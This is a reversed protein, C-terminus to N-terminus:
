RLDADAVQPPQPLCSPLIARANFSVFNRAGTNYLTRVWDAGCRAVDVITM